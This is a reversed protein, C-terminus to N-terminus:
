DGKLRGFSGRGGNVVGQGVFCSTRHVAEILAEWKDLVNDVRCEDPVGGEQDALRLRLADDQMLTKLTNALAHARRGRGSALVGNAGPRVLQNTGPCDDFGVVPLGQALAEATTLGFSEYRSPVVFLQAVTYEATINRVSGPLCIRSGLGSETVMAALSQHLPGDGIIRLDWEPVEDAIEAFARILIEHDKQQTLRGVALLIKRGEAPGAPDAKDHVDICVPNAMAVMKRQLGSPYTSRVQESVCTIRNALLPTLRLLRSQLPRSDYHEMVIHESAIFPIGTGLLALGLPIFMSHMFGIALDPGYGRVTARLARIRRLTVLMTAADTTSGLGLEIREIGSDLSYFSEGGPADFSLVAVRHGRGALGGAVEALVREAGGGPNNMAKIAFLLNM